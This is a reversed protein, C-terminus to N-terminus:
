NYYDVVIQCRVKSRGIQMGCGGVVDMGDDEVCAELRARHYELRRVEIKRLRIHIGGLNCMVDLGLDELKRPMLNTRRNEPLDAGSIGILLM